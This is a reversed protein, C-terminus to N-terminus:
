ADLFGRVAESVASGDAKGALDKMALKMAEGFNLSKKGALAEEVVKKIDEKGLQQPLYREILAAEAEEKRVLDDRGGQKFALISDRRKKMESRLVQECEKDSLESDKGTMGRNAIEKNKFAAVLLRLLGVEESKGAKMASKLDGFIREKFTM